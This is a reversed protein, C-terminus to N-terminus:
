ASTALNASTARATNPQHPLAHPAAPDLPCGPQIERLARWQERGHRVFLRAEVPTFLPHSSARGIRARTLCAVAAVM